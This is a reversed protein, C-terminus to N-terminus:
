LVRSPQVIVTTETVADVTGSGDPRISWAGAQDLTVAVDYQGVGRRVIDDSPYNATSMTGDPARVTCQVIQPDTLVGKLRFEMEVVAKQGVIWDQDAM